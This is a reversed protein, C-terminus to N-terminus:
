RGELRGDYVLQFLGTGPKLDLIKPRLKLNITPLLFM